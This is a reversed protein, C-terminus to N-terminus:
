WLPVFVRFLFCLLLFDSAMFIEEENEERREEEHRRPSDEKSGQKEGEEEGGRSRNTFGNAKKSERLRIRLRVL